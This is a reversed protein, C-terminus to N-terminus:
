WKSSAMVHQVFLQLNGAYLKAYREFPEWLFSSAVNNTPNAPDVVLPGVDHSQIDVPEVLRVNLKSCDSVGRWFQLLLDEVDTASSASQSFYIVLLEIVYSKPKSHIPWDTKKKVWHKLLRIVNTNDGKHKKVFDVQQQSCLVSLWDRKERPVDTIKPKCKWLSEPVPLLDFEVQNRKFKVAFRTTRVNEYGSKHLVDKLFRLHRELWPAFSDLHVAASNIVLVMDVDSDSGVSTAKGYSGGVFTQNISLGSNQKLFQSVSDVESKFDSSVGKMSHMLDNIQAQLDPHAQKHRILAMRAEVREKMRRTAAAFEKEFKQLHLTSDSSVVQELAKWSKCFAKLEVPVDAEPEPQAARHSFCQTTPSKTVMTVQTSKRKAASPSKATALKHQTRVQLWAFECTATKPILTRPFGAACIAQAIQSRFLKFETIHHDRDLCNRQDQSPALFNYSLRLPEDCKMAISNIYLTGRNKRKSSAEPPKYVQVQNHTFVPTQGQWCLFGGSKVEGVLQQAKGQGGDSLEWTISIRTGQMVSGSGPQAPPKFTMHITPTQSPTTSTSRVAFSYDGQSSEIKIDAKDRLLVAIADKLGLGFRGAKKTEGSTHGVIFSDPKLGPGQDSLKITNASANLQPQYRTDADIANMVLERLADISKLHPCHSTAINLDQTFAM